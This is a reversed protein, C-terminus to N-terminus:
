AVGFIDIIIIIIIIISIKLQQRRMTQVFTM